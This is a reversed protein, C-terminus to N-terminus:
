RTPTPKKLKLNVFQIQTSSFEKLFSFLWSTFLLFETTETLLDVVVLAWLEKFFFFHLSYKFFNAHNGEGQEWM